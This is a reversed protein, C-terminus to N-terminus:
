SRVQFQKIESKVVEGIEDLLNGDESEAYVRILSETGSPRVLGWSGDEFSVRIGYSTDVEADFHKPIEKSLADMVKEKLREPCEVNMKRISIDKVDDFLADGGGEENLLRAVIGASVSGDIWGGFDPFMHKWPEAAFVVDNRGELAEPLGGLPVREVDGGEKEVKEDIKSSTNPTTVVVPESVSSRKVADSALVALVGDEPIISGDEGVVVLRDADGDHAFGVDFDRNRVLQILDGLSSKEPKPARGPFKGDINGNLSVVECGLERLLPPTTLAGVGNACDVAVKLDLDTEPGIYGLAESLYSDIVDRTKSETWDDWPAAETNELSEEIERETKRKIEVGNRDFIKIGNNSPPNHSATVMIGMANQERSFWALTHTPALGIYTLDSGASEVGAKVANVLAEGSVRGDRAVVVRPAMGGVARGVKLCLSPSVKNLGGRIGSTGFM